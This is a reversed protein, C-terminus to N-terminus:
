CVVSKDVSLPLQAWSRLSCSMACVQYEIVYVVSTEVGEGMKKVHIIDNNYVKDENERWEEGRYNNERKRKEERLEKNKQRKKSM